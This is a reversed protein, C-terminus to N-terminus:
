RVAEAYWVRSQNETHTIHFEYPFEYKPFCRDTKGQYILQMPLFDGSMSVSFTGTIQHYNSSNAIPVAKENKQHMAYKSVPFFALLTQDINIILKSPVDLARAISQISLHFSFGVERLFGEPVPHKATTAERKTYGLRRFVSQTWTFSFSLGTMQKSLVKRLLLRLM